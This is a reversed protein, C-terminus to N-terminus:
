SEIILEKISETLIVKEHHFALYNEKGGFWELVSEKELKSPKRLLIRQFSSWEYQQYNKAIEHVIPNLHIYRILDKMYEVSPIKCRRFNKRFLSGSRNQQKNLSKAYSLFFRRFKESVFYEPTLAAFDKKASFDKNASGLIIEKTKVKIILHFHNPLLCYCYFDFYDSMYFSLKNLFYFYNEPKLFTLCSDNGSNYIHYFNEPELPITIDDRASM